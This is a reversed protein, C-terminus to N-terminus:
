EFSLTSNKKRFFRIGNEVSELRAEVFSLTNAALQNKDKISSQNYSTILENLIDEARKPVEDKLSINVVTSLRNSTSVNLRELISSAVEKPKILKFFLQKQPYQKNNNKTVFMLERIPDDGM